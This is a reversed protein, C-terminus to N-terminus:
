DAYEVMRYYPKYYNVEQVLEYTSTSDAFRFSSQYSVTNMEHIWKLQYNALKENIYVKGNKKKIIEGNQFAVRENTHLPTFKFDGFNRILQSSIDETLSYRKRMLVSDIFYLTISFVEIGHIQM